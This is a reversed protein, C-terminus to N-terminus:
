ALFLFRGQYPRKLPYVFSEMGQIILTGNSTSIGLSNSLICEYIGSDTERADIIEMNEMSGFAKVGDVQLDITHNKVWRITPKPNGTGNCRLSFSKGVAVTKPVSFGTMRPAVTLRVMSINICSFVSSLYISPFM